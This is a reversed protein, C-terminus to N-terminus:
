DLSSVSDTDVAETLREMVKNMFNPSKMLSEIKKRDNGYQKQLKITEPHSLDALFYLPPLVPDTDLKNFCGTNTEIENFKKIVENDQHLGKQERDNIEIMLTSRENYLIANRDGYGLMIGLLRQNNHIAKSLSIERKEIKELFSEPSFSDGLVEKFIVDNSLLINLLTKKNILVLVLCDILDEEKDLFIFDKLDFDNKHKYWANLSAKYRSILFRAKSKRPIPLELPMELCMDAMSMPKSGFITYAFDHSLILHAFIYKISRMDRQPIDPVDAKLSFTSCFLLLLLRRVLTAKYM